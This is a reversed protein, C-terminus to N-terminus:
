VKSEDMRSSIKANQFSFRSVKSRRPISYTQLHNYTLLRQKRQYKLTNGRPSQTSSTRDLQAACERGGSSGSPQMGLHHNSNASVMKLRIPSSESICEGTFRM